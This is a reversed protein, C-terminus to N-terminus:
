AVGRDPGTARPSAYAGLALRSASVARANDAAQRKRVTLRRADEEDRAMARTLTAADSEIWRDVEGRQAPSLAARFRVWDRRVPALRESLATLEAALSQRAALVSLLQTPDEGSALREQRECLTELRRYLGHQDRLWSLAKRLDIADRMPTTTSKMDVDM